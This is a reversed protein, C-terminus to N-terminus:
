TPLLVSGPRSERRGAPSVRVFRARRHLSPLDAAGAYGMGSRIGGVLEAIVGALPGRCPVLGAVGEPVLKAPHVDEQAYRDRVEGGSGSGRAGMAERSGMGRYVKYGRGQREVVEGPAEDVGALPNGVMLFSAGAALAKVMDGSTKMGGDAIIPVGHPRAAEACILIATIQPFGAGSVERTTCVSGPGVGVKVAQAGAAILEETAEATVVNGAVVAVSPPLAVRLARVTELVRTSHGHATDVVIAGAGARVLAEARSVAEAGVGVAGAVPLGQAAVQRAGDAQEEVSLNRHLVGLGGLRALEAALRVGTVTDMAASLIPLRLHLSGLVGSLDAQSPIVESRQPVLLVDDFTLGEGWIREQWSGLGLLGVERGLELAGTQAM